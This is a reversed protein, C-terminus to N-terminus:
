LPVVGLINHRKTIVESTQEAVLYSPPVLHNMFCNIKESSHQSLVGDM